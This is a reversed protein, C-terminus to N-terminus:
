SKFNKLHHTLHPLGCCVDTPKTYKLHEGVCTSCHECTLCDNKIVIKNDLAKAADFWDEYHKFWRFYERFDDDVDLLGFRGRPDIFVHNVNANAFTHEIRPAYLKFSYAKTQYADLARVYFDEFDVASVTHHTRADVADSYQLFHLGGLGLGEIFNFVTEVDAQLVSPLVVVNATIRRREDDSLKRLNDAVVSDMLRGDATVRESNFSVGLLVDYFPKPELLRRAYGLNVTFNSSVNLIPRVKERLHSYRVGVDIIDLLHELKEYDLMFVEGGYVNVSPDITRHRIISSLANSLAPVTVVAKDFVADGLYCHPCRGNCCFTPIISVSLKRM